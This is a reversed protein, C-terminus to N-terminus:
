NRSEEEDFDLAELEAEIEDIDAGHCVGFLMGSLFALAMPSEAGMEASVSQAYDNGLFENLAIKTTTM